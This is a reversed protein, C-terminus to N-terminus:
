QQRLKGKDKQVYGEKGDLLKVRFWNGEERVVQFTVGGPGPRSRHM